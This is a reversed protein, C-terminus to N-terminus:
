PVGPDTRLMRDPVIPSTASFIGLPDSRWKIGLSSPDFDAVGHEIKEAAAALMAALRGPLPKTYPIQSALSHHHMCIQIATPNLKLDVLAQAYRHRMSHPALGESASPQLGLRHLARAFAEDAADRTMPRGTQPGSLTVFYYPHQALKPRVHEIYIKHLDWFLRGVDPNRWFVRTRRGGGYVSESLLLSKWGAFLPDSPGLRCRPVMGYRALYQSRQTREGHVVGHDPDYLFVSTGQGTETDLAVDQLFLHLPESKRLGGYMLLLFYLVDRIIHPCLGGRVDRKRRRILGDRFFAVELSEPFPIPRTDSHYRALDREFPIFAPRSSAERDRDKLHALISHSRRTEFAFSAKLDSV